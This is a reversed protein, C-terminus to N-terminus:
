NIQYHGIYKSFLFWVVGLVGIVLEIIKHAFLLFMMLYYYNVLNQTQTYLL